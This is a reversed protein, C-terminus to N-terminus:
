RRNHILSLLLRVREALAACLAGVAPRLATEVDAPSLALRRGAADRVAVPRGSALAAALSRKVREAVAFDLLFAHSVAETLEDGAIPLMDYAIVEGDRTVAIDSTGAGIDVLVLNLHRLGPPVVANLVAVPELTLSAMALGARELAAGLSDVVGRPLFTALVEVSFVRGVQGVLQRIPAGDVVTRIVTHAVCHYESATGSGSGSRIDAQAAEVAEWELCLADERTLAEYGPLEREARGRATRLARGAAAVAARRLNMGAKKELEGRVEAVVSAVEVVDHIQGDYMSRETHERRAAALVRLGGDEERVVLGLVKRTGIDLALWPEGATM